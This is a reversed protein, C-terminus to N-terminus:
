VFETPIASKGWGFGAGLTLAVRSSRSNAPTIPFENSSVKLM